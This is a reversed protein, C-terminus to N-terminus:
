WKRLWAAGDGGVDRPGSRSPIGYPFERPIASPRLLRYNSPVYAVFDQLIEMVCAGRTEYECQKKKKRKKKDERKWRSAKRTRAGECVCCNTTLRFFKEHRCERFIWSLRTCLFSVRSIVDQVLCDTRERSLCIRSSGSGYLKVIGTHSIDALCNLSHSHLLLFRKLIAASFSECNRKLFAM